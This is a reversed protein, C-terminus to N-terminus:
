VGILANEVLEVIADPAQPRDVLLDPTPPHLEVDVPDILDLYHRGLLKDATTELVREAAANVFNFHGNDDTRYIIDSAGDVMQRYHRYASPDTRYDVPPAATM